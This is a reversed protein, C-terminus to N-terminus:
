PVLKMCICTVKAKGAAGRGRTSLLGELPCLDLFLSSVGVGRQPITSQLLM